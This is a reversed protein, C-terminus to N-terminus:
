VLERAQYKKRHYADTGETKIKKVEVNRGEKRGKKSKRRWSERKKREVKRGKKSVEKM